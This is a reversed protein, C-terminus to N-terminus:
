RKRGASESLTLVAESQSDSHNIASKKKVWETLQTRSFVVRKGIKRFPIAKNSVLNYLSGKKILYGQEQLFIIAKDMGILDSEFKVPEAPTIKKIGECVLESIIEKAQEITLAAFPLNGYNKEPKM